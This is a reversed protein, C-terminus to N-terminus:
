GYFPRYAQEEIRTGDASVLGSWEIRVYYDGAYEYRADVAYVAEAEYWQVTVSWNGAEYRFRSSWAGEEAATEAWPKGPADVDPHEGVLFDFALDRAREPAIAEAKHSRNVYADETTGPEPAYKGSWAIYPPPSRYTLEIDFTDEELMVGNVSVLGGPLVVMDIQWGASTYGYVALAHVAPEPLAEWAPEDLLGAVEPHEARVYDIVLDRAVAPDTSPFPPTPEAPTPTAQAPLCAALALISPLLLLSRLLRPRAKV